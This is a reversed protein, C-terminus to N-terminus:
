IKKCSSEEGGECIKFNIEDCYLAKSPYLTELEDLNMFKRHKSLESGDNYSESLSEYKIDLEFDFKLVIHLALDISLLPCLIVSEEIQATNLRVNFVKNVEQVVVDVHFKKLDLQKHIIFVKLLDKPDENNASETIIHLFM